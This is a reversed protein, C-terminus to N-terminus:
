TTSLSELMEQRAESERDKITDPMQVLDSTSNENYKYARESALDVFGSIQDGERIPVQRLVLPKSSVSQLASLVDRIRSSAKDMKNIFLMHPIDYDDLFKFLPALTLARSEEPDAVVIAVDAGM